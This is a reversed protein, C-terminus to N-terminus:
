KDNYPNKRSKCCVFAPAILIADMKVPHIIKDHNRLHEATM